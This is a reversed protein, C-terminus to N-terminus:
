WRQVAKVRDAESLAVGNFPNDGDFPEGIGLNERFRHREEAKQKEKRHQPDIFAM